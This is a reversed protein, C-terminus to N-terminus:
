YQPYFASPDLDQAMPSTDVSTQTQIATLIARAKEPNTRMLQQFRPNNALLPRAHINARPPTAFGRTPDSGLPQGTLINGFDSTYGGIADQLISMARSRPAEQIGEAPPMQLSALPTDSKAALTRFRDLQPDVRNLYREQSRQFPDGVEFETGLVMKGTLPDTVRKRWRVNGNADLGAEGKSLAEFLFNSGRKALATNDAAFSALDGGTLASFVRSAQAPNQAMGSQFSSEDYLSQPNVAGQLGTLSGVANRDGGLRQRMLYEMPSAIGQQRMDEQMVPSLQPEGGAGPLKYQSLRNTAALAAMRNADQANKADVANWLQDRAALQGPLSTPAFQGVQRSAEAQAGNQLTALQSALRQQSYYQAPDGLGLNAAQQHIYDRGQSSSLFLNSDVEQPSLNPNGTYLARLQGESAPKNVNFLM